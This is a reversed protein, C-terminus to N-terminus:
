SKCAVADGIPRYVAVGVVARTTLPEPVAQARKHLEETTVHAGTPGMAAAAVAASRDLSLEFDVIVREDLEFRGSLQEQVRREKDPDITLLGLAEVLERLHDPEPTVVILAGQPHLARRFEEANRPSFIDLVLAAAGDRIPLAGWADAVVADAREHATAARKAAHKSIDLAIGTRDPSAELVTALHAGTGAGVDLVIGPVPDLNVRVAAEAVAISLPTLFGRSLFEARAAVMEATDATGTRARGPLLNLYGQRALDFSHGNGCSVARGAESM